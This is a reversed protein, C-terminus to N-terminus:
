LRIDESLTQGKPLQPNMAGHSATAASPDLRDMADPLSSYNSNQAGSSLTQFRCRIPGQHIHNALDTNQGPGNTWLCCARCCSSYLVHVLKKIILKINWLQTLATPLFENIEPWPPTLVPLSLSRIEIRQFSVRSKLRDFIRCKVSSGHEFRPHSQYQSSYSDAIDEDQLTGPPRRYQGSQPWSRLVPRSATATGSDKRAYRGHWYRCRSSRSPIM